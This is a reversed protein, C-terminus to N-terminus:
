KFIPYLCYVALVLGRLFLYLTIYILQLSFTKGAANCLQVLQGLSLLRQNKLYTTNFGLRCRVVVM